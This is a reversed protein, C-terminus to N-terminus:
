FSHEYGLKPMARTRGSQDVLAVGDAAPAMAGIVATGAPLREAAAPSVAALLVYEEGSSIAFDVLSAGELGFLEGVAPPVPLSEERVVAGVGSEECLTRLDKALGDSVDIMATVCPPEADILAADLPRALPVLHQRVFDLLAEGGPGADLAGAMRALEAPSTALSLSGLM